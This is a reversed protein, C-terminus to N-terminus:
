RQQELADLYQAVATMVPQYEGIVAEIGVTQAFARCVMEVYERRPTYELSAIIM